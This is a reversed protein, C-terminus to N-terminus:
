IMHSYALKMNSTGITKTFPTIGNLLRALKKNGKVTRKAFHISIIVM